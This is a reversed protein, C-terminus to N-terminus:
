FEKIVNYKTQNSLNDFLSLGIFDNVLSDRNITANLLVNEYNSTESNLFFRDTFITGIVTGKLQTKGYCYVTGIVSADEEIILERKLSNKYNNGNIVIGGALTSKKGISVKVSDIDNEVYISSPYKLLVNTEIDVKRKTIIQINGRFGSTIVVEPAVVLVDELIATNSISLKTNSRLVFNGKIAIDSLTKIGNLDIIKTKASFANVIPNTNLSNLSVVEFNNLDLEIRKKLKPLKNSSTQQTGFVQVNNGFQGNIYTQEISGNPIKLHGTIKTEGSLKLPIDYDTTYLALKTNATSKKGVMALKFITDKKFSTKCILIDYFGWRKKELLSPINDNFADFSNVTNFTYNDANTIFHSFSANNRDVLEEQFHLQTNLLNNYHSILVLCGCFVSIIVCIFITNSLSSAKLHTIIKM